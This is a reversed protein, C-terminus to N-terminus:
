FRTQVQGYVAPSTGRNNQSPSIPFGIDLRVRTQEYNVRFGFGAGTLKESGAEGPLPNKRVIGGHDLFMVTQFLDTRDAIPSWRLELTANYAQDGLTEAQNFGRVTDPGGLAFQEATFLPDATFQMSSRLIGLFQPHFEQIRALDLNYRTFDGGAGQRSALPDGSPTGGLGKTLSAKGLYRGQSDRWEGRYGLHASLYEDRSLRQGLIRNELDNYNLRFDVDSSHQLTRALPQSLSLSYINANGRIDLIEVEQGATYSGNAYQVGLRTGSANIPLSYGGQFFITNDSPTSLLTRAVAYDGPTFVSSFETGLGFRHEGTLRAGFNNYGLTVHFNKDEETRLVVDTTGEELGASLVATVKVDPLENLLFLGRQFDKTTAGESPVANQFRAKLFDNPYRKNGEVVIQNIRGELVQVQLVGAVSEQTPVIANVLFYGRQRYVQEIDKELDKLEAISLQRGQYKQLVAALDEDSVLSNGTVQVEQVPLRTKLDRDEPPDALPSAPEQAPAALALALFILAGTLKKKLHNVNWPM